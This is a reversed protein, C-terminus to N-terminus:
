NHPSTADEIRRAADLLDAAKRRMEDVDVDEPIQLAYLGFPDLRHIGKVRQEDAVETYIATSELNAHRMLTQVTRLDVGARMLATGFWHRLQHASGPVGARVMAAKVTSCVSERRQHGRDDGPFWYGIRPMQYAIEVVLPHLPLTARHGGKGVVDMSRDVLDLHEGKVKAIEHARLGQMAALLVMARTRKYMQSRLLRRLNDDTIPRPECRVRKPRGVKVMPNDIRHDLLQLWRFWSGLQVYYTMRTRPTWEGGDALWEAVMAADAAHPGVGDLWEGFRCVTSVREAITRSSLSQARQWTEWEGVFLPKATTRTSTM